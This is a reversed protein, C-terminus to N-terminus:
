EAAPEDATERIERAKRQAEYAAFEDTLFSTSSQRVAPWNAVAVRGDAQTEFTTGAEAFRTELLTRM